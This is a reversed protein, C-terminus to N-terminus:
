VSRYAALTNDSSGKEIATSNLFESACAVLAGPGKEAATGPM